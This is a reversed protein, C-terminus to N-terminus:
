GWTTQCKVPVFAYVLLMGGRGRAETQFPGAQGEKGETRGTAVSATSGPRGACPKASERRKAQQRPDAAGRNGSTPPATCSLPVPQAGMRATLRPLLLCVGPTLRQGPVGCDPNPRLRWAPPAPSASLLCVGGSAWAPGLRPGLGRKPAGATGPGREGSWFRLILAQVEGLQPIRQPGPGQDVARPGWLHSNKSDTSM